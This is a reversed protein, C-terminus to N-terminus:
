FAFTFGVSWQRIRPQESQMGFGAHLSLAETAQWRTGVGWWPKTQSEGYFEAVVDFGGRVAYEAALNWTTHSRHDIQDHLWGLNAHWTVNKLVEQTAVLSLQSFDHKFSQGHNRVGGITWAVGLGVGDDERDILGTKGLLTVNRSTLGASRAQGYALALQTSLGVGCSLQTEWGNETASRRAKVRTYVGEWECGAKDLVDADETALPPAAECRFSATACLLSGVLWASRHSRTM